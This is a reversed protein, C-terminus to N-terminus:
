RQLDPTINPRYPAFGDSMWKSTRVSKFPTLYVKNLSCMKGADQVSHDTERDEEKTKSIDGM